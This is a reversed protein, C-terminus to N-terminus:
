LDFFFREDITKIKKNKVNIYEILHIHPKDHPLFNNIDFRIEKLGNGSQFIVDGNENIIKKSNPGLWEVIDDGLQQIKPTNSPNGKWWNKIKTGVGKISGWADGAVSKISKILGSGTAMKAVTGPGVLGIALNAGEGALHSGTVSEVASSTATQVPKGSIAQRIGAQINDLGNGAVVGGVGAVVVSGGMTPASGAIGAVVGVSGVATQAAGGIVQLVGFVRNLLSSDETNNASPITVEPTPPPNLAADM